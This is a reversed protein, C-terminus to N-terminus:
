QRLRDLPEDWDYRRYRPSRKDAPDDAPDAEEYTLAGEDAHEGERSRAEGERTLPSDADIEAEAEDRGTGLGVPDLGATTAGAPAGAGLGGYYDRESHWRDADLEAADDRRGFDRLQERTYPLRLTDGELAAGHAPVVVNTFGVADGPVGVCEVRGTAEDYYVDGVHGIEEDDATRVPINRLRPIDRKTLGTARHEDM